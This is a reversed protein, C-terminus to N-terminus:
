EVTSTQRTGQGVATAVDTTGEAVVHAVEQEPALTVLAANRVRTVLSCKKLERNPAKIVARQATNDLALRSCLMYLVPPIVESATTQMNM